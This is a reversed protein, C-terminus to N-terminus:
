HWYCCLLECASGKLSIRVKNTPKSANQQLKNACLDGDISLLFDYTKKLDFFLVAFNTSCLGFLVLAFSPM